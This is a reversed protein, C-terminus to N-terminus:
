RHAETSVFTSKHARIWANMEDPNELLWWDYSVDDVGDYIDLAPADRAPVPPAHVAGTHTSM